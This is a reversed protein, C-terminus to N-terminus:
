VRKGTGAPPIAAAMPGGPLTLLLVLCLVAKTSCRSVLDELCFSISSFFPLLYGGGFSVISIRWVRLVIMHKRGTRFVPM